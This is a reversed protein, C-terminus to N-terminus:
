LRCPPALFCPCLCIELAPLPPLPSELTHLKSSRKINQLTPAMISFAIAKKEKRQFGVRVWGKERTRLFLMLISFLHLPFDELKRNSRLNTPRLLLIDFLSKLLDLFLFLFFLFSLIPTGVGRELRLVVTWAHNNKKKTHKVQAPQFFFLLHFLHFMGM